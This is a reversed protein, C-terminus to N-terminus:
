SGADSLNAHGIQLRCNPLFYLKSFCRAVCRDPNSKGHRTQQEEKVDSDRSM